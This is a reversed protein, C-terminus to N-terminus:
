YKQSKRGGTTDPWSNSNPLKTNSDPLKNNQPYTGLTDKMDLKTNKQSKSKRHLGAAPPLNIGFDQVELVEAPLTMVNHYLGPAYEEFVDIYYCCSGSNNPRGAQDPYASKIAAVRLIDKNKIKSEILDKFTQGREAIDAHKLAQPKIIVTDGILFGGMQYRNLSYELLTKFKSEQLKMIDYNNIQM